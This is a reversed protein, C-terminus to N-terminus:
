DQTRPQRRPSLAGAVFAKVVDLALFPVSGLLVASELSGTIITLQAIGGIYIALIGLMAAGTRGAYGPLRNAVWGAIFAAVPYAFIYGGTPGLLRAIGPAGMPAWVPLGSAGALIYLVMSSAGAVPGLWLGALVVALPQLTMPVATGPIPIAVQSAAALAVAFGVIGIFTVRRDRTRALTFSPNTM